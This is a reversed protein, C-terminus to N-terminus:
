AATITTSNPMSGTHADLEIGRSRSKANAFGNAFSVGPLL